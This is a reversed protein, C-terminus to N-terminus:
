FFTYLCNLFATTVLHINLAARANENYKALQKFEMFTVFDDGNVSALSANGRLHLFLHASGPFVGVTGIEASGTISLSAQLPTYAVGPPDVLPAVLGTLLHAPNRTDIASRFGDSLLMVHGPDVLLQLDADMRAWVSPGDWLQVRWDELLNIAVIPLSFSAITAREGAFLSLLVIVPQKLVDLQVGPAGSTFDTYYAEYATANAELIPNLYIFEDAPPDGNWIPELKAASFDVSFDQLPKVVGCGDLDLDALASIRHVTNVVNAMTQAADVFSGLGCLNSGCQLRAVFSLADFLNSSVGFHSSAPMARLMFGNTGILSEMPYLLARLHSMLTGALRALTTGLCLRPSRVSFTTPTALTDDLSWNFSLALTVNLHPLATLPDPVTSVFANQSGLEAEGSLSSSVVLSVSDFRAFLPESRIGDIQLTAQLSGEPKYEVSLAGIRGKLACDSRFELSTRVILPVQPDFVVQLGRVSSVSLNVLATFTSMGSVVCENTQLHASGHAGLDFSM